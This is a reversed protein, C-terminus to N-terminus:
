LRMLVSIRASKSSQLFHSKGVRISGGVPNNGVYRYANWEGGAGWLPDVSLWRGWDARYVRARVYLRNAGDRYYGYQGGFRLNNVVRGATGM